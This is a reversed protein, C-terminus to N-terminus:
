WRQDMGDFKQKRAARSMKSAENNKRRRELYYSLDEVDKVDDARTTSRPRKNKNSPIEDSITSCVARSQIRSSTRRSGRAPTRKSTTAITSSSPVDNVPTRKTLFAHDHEIANLAGQTSDTQFM